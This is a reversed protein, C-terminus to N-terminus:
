QHSETHPFPALWALVIPPFSFALVLGFFTAYDHGVAGWVWGSVSGTSWKTLAM